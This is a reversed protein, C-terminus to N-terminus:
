TPTPPRRRLKLRGPRAQRDDDAFRKRAPDRGAAPEGAGAQRARILVHDRGSGPETENAALDEDDRDQDGVVPVPATIPDDGELDAFTQYVEDV